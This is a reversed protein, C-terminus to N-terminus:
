SQSVFDQFIIHNNSSVKRSAWAESRESLCGSLLTLSVCRLYKQCFIFRLGSIHGGHSNSTNPYPPAWRTCIKTAPTQQFGATSLHRQTKWWSYFYNNSIKFYQRSEKKHHETPHTQTDQLYHHNQSRKRTPTHAGAFRGSSSGSAISTRRRCEYNWQWCWWRSSKNLIQPDSGQFIWVLRTQPHQGFDWSGYIEPNGGQTVFTKKWIWRM